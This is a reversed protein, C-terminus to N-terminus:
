KLNFVEKNYKTSEGRSDSAGTLGERALSPFLVDCIPAPHTLTKNKLKM